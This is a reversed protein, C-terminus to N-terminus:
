RLVVCDFKRHGLETLFGTVIVNLVSLQMFGELALLWEVRQASQMM